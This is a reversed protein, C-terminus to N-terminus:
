KIIRPKGFIDFLNNINAIDWTLISSEKAILRANREVDGLGIMIKNITKYRFKKLSQIFENVDQEKIGDEKIAALWMSDQAKGFIGIKLHSEDFTIIKLEKFPSLRVKKREILVDDGEFLNFIDMMRDAINKKSLNVFDDIQAHIKSRFNSAQESYEPSLANLKEYHVFKLWFSMLRDNISYFSGNKSILDSEILRNLKQILEAKPKRFFGTIDKLRNKGSAIADMLYILDNKNRNLTMLSLMMTFRLNLIGHDSFLLKELTYSLVDKDLENKLSAKCAGYAEDCITKLYFPHGGTFNILFDSIDKPVSIEVLNMKILEQCNQPSLAQLEITEFNGFLLSLDNALIERAENKSSSSFIFLTNKEFMIRKGLEQCINKIGLKKLNHFEDFVIICYKKSELAFTKTITLLEKFLTEPKERELRGLFQEIQLTTQPLLEKSRKVLTEFNERSSILQKGKLFNYLLSNLFRKLFLSFEFPIIEVYATTLKEDNVASLFQKLLTTKGILENGLIAVNQRYGDKFDCVRKNLQDLVEKRALNAFNGM